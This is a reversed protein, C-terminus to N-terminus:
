HLVFGFWRLRSEKMKDEFQAVQVNKRTKLNLEDLRTYSSMYRIM